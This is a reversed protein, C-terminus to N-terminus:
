LGSYTLIYTNYIKCFMKVPIVHFSNKLENSGRKSTHLIYAELGPAMNAIGKPGRFPGFYSLIFIETFLNSKIWM